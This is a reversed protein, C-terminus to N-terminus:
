RIFYLLGLGVLMSGLGTYRLIRDDMQAINLLAQRVGQPNLFPLIGEIVLMLGLATLFDHWM